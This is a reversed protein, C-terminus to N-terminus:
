LIEDTLNPIIKAVSIFTGHMADHTLLKEFQIYQLFLFHDKTSHLGATDGADVGVEQFLM